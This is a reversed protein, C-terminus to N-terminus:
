VLCTSKGFLILCASFAAIGVPYGSERMIGYVLPVTISGMIACFSRMGIYPVNSKVYNDGIQDFGFKGDFGVWWGALANLM